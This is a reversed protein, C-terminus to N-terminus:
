VEQTEKGNRSSKSGYDSGGGIVHNCHTNNVRCCTYIIDCLTATLVHQENVM